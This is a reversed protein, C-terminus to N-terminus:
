ARAVLVDGSRRRFVPHSGLCTAHKVQLVRLALLFYTVAALMDRQRSKTKACSAIATHLFTLQTILGHTAGRVQLVAFGELGLPFSHAKVNGSGVSHDEDSYPYIDCPTSLSKGPRPQNVVGICTRGM